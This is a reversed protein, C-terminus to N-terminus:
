PYFSDTCFFFFKFKRVQGKSESIAGRQLIPSLHPAVTGQGKQFTTGTSSEYVLKKCETVHVAPGEM